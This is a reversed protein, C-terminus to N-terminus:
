HGRVTLMVLTALGVLYITFETITMLAPKVFACFLAFDQILGAAARLLKHEPM